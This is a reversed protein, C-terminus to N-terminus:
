VCALPFCHYAAGVRVKPLMVKMKLANFTSTVLEISPGAPPALKTVVTRPPGYRFLTHALSVIRM